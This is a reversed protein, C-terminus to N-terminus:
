GQNGKIQGTNMTRVLGTERIVMHKIAKDMIIDDAPMIQDKITM